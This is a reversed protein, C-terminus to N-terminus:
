IWTEALGGGINRRENQLQGNQCSHVTAGHKTTAKVGSYLEEESGEKVSHMQINDRRSQGELDTLKADMEIQLKLMETVAEENLQIRTKADMIREEM